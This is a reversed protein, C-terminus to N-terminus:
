LKQKIISVFFYATFSSLLYFFSRKFESKKVPSFWPLRINGGRSLSVSGFCFSSLSRLMKCYIGVELSLMIWNQLHGPSIIGGAISILFSYVRCTLGILFGSIFGSGSFIFIEEFLEFEDDGFGKNKTTSSFSSTM